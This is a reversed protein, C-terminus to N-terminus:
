KVARRRKVPVPDSAAVTWTRTKTLATGAMAPNVLTTPDSVRLEVTHTGPAPTYTFVPATADAQEVGDVLWRVRASGGDPQLVTATFTLAQGAVTNVNADSPAADDILNIRAGPRWGNYLRLVFAQACVECFAVGLHHMLCDHKPRYFGTTQYRAGLFLGLGSFSSPTPLATSSSIWPGWKIAARSTQDTVNPECRNGIIQLDSCLPYTPYPTSYEDALGTFSHGFEHQAVAIANINTSVVSLAGGAGGYMTDNVIVLVLDWDPVARAAAFVKAESVTLLRQLNQSCYTADFATDVFTGEKPDTGGDECNPHDAGSQASAVFHMTVNVFSRYANYPPIGLFQTALRQADTHFKSTEGATYGDGMILLDLRNASSAPADSAVRKASMGLPLARVSFQSASRSRPTRVEITEGGAPVRVVFPTKEREIWRGDIEGDAGEFEARLYRDLQVTTRYTALGHADRVEVDVRRPDDGAAAVEPEPLSALEVADASVLTVADHRDIEFVVYHAPVSALASSTLVLLALALCTRSM